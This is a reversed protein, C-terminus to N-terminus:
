CCLAGVRHFHLIKTEQITFCLFVEFKKILRSLLIQAIMRGLMVCNVSVLM